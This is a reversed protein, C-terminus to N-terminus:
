NAPAVVLGLRVAEAAALARSPVGLKALVASVHHDVTRDSIVLHQAIEMNTRGACILELVERERRTLGLPHARTAAHVGTPISRYGRRRMERRTARVAAVAGLADFRRLAERLGAESGSDYCALAADYPSALADWAAVAGAHDGAFALAYPEAVAGDVRPVDAGVRRSWALIAGRQWADADDLYRGAIELDGAAAEVDGELWFAEAHAPYAQLIWGSEGSGAALNLAGDLHGQASAEGCRAAILGVALALIIRNAPSPIGSALLPRCLDVAENWRGQLMLSGGQGGRLCLGYTGIDHEDCYAAGEAFCADSEAFRRTTALLEHMNAYARGAQDHLGASVAIDLARRMLPDWDGGAIAVLCAETNLADSHVEPLDLAAALEQARRALAVGRAAASNHMYAGALMAYAAALEASPGLPELTAVAGMAYELSEAGRCLRWMTRALGRMAAGERRSDGIARWLRLAEEGAAAAREWADTLSTERALHDYLDAVFAPERAGAFRLARAYEDAAERHAGLAADRRAARPAFLLVADADGAGEAHYALRADEDCGDALLV